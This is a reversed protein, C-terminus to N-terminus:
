SKNLAVHMADHPGRAIAGLLLIRTDESTYVPIRLIILTLLITSGSWAQRTLPMFSLGPSLAPLGCVGPKTIRKYGLYSMQKGESRAQSRGCGGGQDRRGGSLAARGVVADVATGGSAM